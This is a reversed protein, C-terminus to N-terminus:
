QYTHLPAHSKDITLLPAVGDRSWYHDVRLTPLQTRVEGFEDPFVKLLFYSLPVIDLKTVSLYYNTPKLYYVRSIIVTAVRSQRIVDTTTLRREM